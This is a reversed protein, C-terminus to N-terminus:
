STSQYYLDRCYPCCERRPGSCATFTPAQLVFQYVLLREAGTNGSSQLLEVAKELEDMKMVLEEYSIQQDAVVEKGLAMASTQIEAIDEQLEEDM